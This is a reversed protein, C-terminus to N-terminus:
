SLIMKGEEAMKTLDRSYTDLIPTKSKAESKKSSSSSSFAKDDDDDDEIAMKVDPVNKIYQNQKMTKKDM